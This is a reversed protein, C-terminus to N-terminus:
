IFGSLSDVQYGVKQGAECPFSAVNFQSAMEVLPVTGILSTNGISQMSVTDPVQNILRSISVGAPIRIQVPAMQPMPFPPPM